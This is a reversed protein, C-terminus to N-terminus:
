GYMGGLRANEAIVQKASAESREVRAIAAPMGSQIATQRALEVCERNNEWIIKAIGPNAAIYADLGGLYDSAREYEVCFSGNPEYLKYPAKDAVPQASAPPQTSPEGASQELGAAKGTLAKLKVLVESPSEGHEVEAEFEIKENEYNGTNITRGYRVSIIKM